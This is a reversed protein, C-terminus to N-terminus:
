VVLPNDGVTCPRSWRSPLSGCCNWSSCWVLAISVSSALGTTPSVVVVFSSCATRHACMAATLAWRVLVDSAACGAGVGEGGAVDVGAHLLTV